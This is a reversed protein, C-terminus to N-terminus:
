HVWPTDMLVCTQDRAKNLPDLIQHQQSSHHLDCIHSPDLTATATTYALLESEVRLRSVEVHWLLPGLFPLFVFFIFFSLWRKSKSEKM